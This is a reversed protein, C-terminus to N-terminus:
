DVQTVTVGISLADTATGAIGLTTDITDTQGGAANPTFDWCWNLVFAKTTATAGDSAALATVGTNMATTLATLDQYTGAPTGTYAGTLVSSYRQTPVTGAPYTYYVPITTVNTIAFTPIVKVESLNNVTLTFAGTTGPAIFKAAGNLGNNYVGSDTYHFVDYIGTTTAQTLTAGNSPTLNFLFKAVRASDTGTTTTVYKSYTGSVLSSTVLTLVLALVGLRAALNKKM